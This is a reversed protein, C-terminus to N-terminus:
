FAVLFFFYNKLLTLCLQRGWAILCDILLMKYPSHILNLYIIYM